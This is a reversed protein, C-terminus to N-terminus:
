RTPEWAGGLKELLQQRCRFDWTYVTNLSAADLEKQIEPFTKGLLKLEFIRRCREGLEAVAKLLRERLLSAAAADAPGPAPDAYQMEEVPVATNEGRRHQKRRLAVCKFRVVRLALPVLEELAEVQPYKQHLLMLTEQAIDEAADRSLISAAFGIIRERLRILIQERTM